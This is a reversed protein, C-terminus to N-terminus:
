GGPQPKGGFSAGGPGPEALQLGEGKGEFEKGRLKGGPTLPGKEGLKSPKATPPVGAPLQSGGGTVHGGAAASAAIAGVGGVGDGAM